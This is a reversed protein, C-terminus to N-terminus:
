KELVPKSEMLVKSLAFLGAENNRAPMVQLGFPLGNSHKFLPLSIAPTGTLNAFVTFIDALYTAIPDKANEGLSFATATTTPLIIADFNRFIKNLEDILMQRVQQAKTFYADHFGASLVFTGLMIRRKVERGFGETRNQMYFDNLGSVPACTQHGYRVGDYRSLNSSAEATTLVYYAAVIYDTLPFDVETVSHGAAKLEALASHVAASIEPDLSSHKLMEPFVAIRISDAQKDIVALPPAHHQNMTSDLPDPRSMIEIALAIDDLSEGFVGVQDFSSAYAILGYRSISGYSPKM